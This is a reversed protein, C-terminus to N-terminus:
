GLGADWIIKGFLDDDGSAEREGNADAAADAPTQARAPAAVTLLVETAAPNIIRM